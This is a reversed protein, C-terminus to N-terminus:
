IHVSNLRGVGNELCGAAATAVRRLGPDAFVVNRAESPLLVSPVATSGSDQQGERRSWATLVGAVYTRMRWRDVGGHERQQEDTIDQKSM